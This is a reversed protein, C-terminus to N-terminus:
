KGERKMDCQWYSAEDEMMEKRTDAGCDCPEWPTWAENECVMCHELYRHEGHEHECDVLEYEAACEHDLEHPM